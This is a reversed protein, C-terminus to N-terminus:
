LTAAFASSLSTLAENWYAIPAGFSTFNAEWVISALPLTANWIKSSFPTFTTSENGCPVVTEKSDSLDTNVNAFPSIEEVNVAPWDANKFTITLSLSPLTTASDSRTVTETADAPANAPKPELHVSPVAFKSASSKLACVVTATSLVAVNANLVTSWYPLVALKPSALTSNM